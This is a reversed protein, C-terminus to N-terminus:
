QTLISQASHSFWSFAGHEELHAPPTVIGTADHDILQLMTSSILLTEGPQLTYTAEALLPTTPQTQLNHQSKLQM